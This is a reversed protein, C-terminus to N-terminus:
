LGVSWDGGESVMVSEGDETRQERAETRQGRVESLWRKMIINEFVMEM